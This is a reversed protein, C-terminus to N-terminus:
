VILRSGDVVLPSKPSNPTYATLTGSLLPSVSLRSQDPRPLHIPSSFSGVQGSGNRVVVLRLNYEGISLETATDYQVAGNSRKNGAAAPSVVRRKIIHHGHSVQVARG